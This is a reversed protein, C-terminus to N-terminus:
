LENLFFKKNLLIVTLGPLGPKGQPGRLIEKLTDNRLIEMLNNVSCSCTEATTTKFTELQSFSKLYSHQLSQMFMKLCVKSSDFSNVIQCEGKPGITVLLM